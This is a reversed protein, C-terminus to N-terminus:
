FPQFLNCLTDAHLAHIVEWRVCVCVCVCVYVCVFVCVCVCMCMNDSCEHMYVTFFFCQGCLSVDHVNQYYSMGVTILNLQKFSLCSVRM